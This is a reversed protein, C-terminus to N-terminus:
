DARVKLRIINSAGWTTIFSGTSTTIHLQNYEGERVHIRMGDELEFMVGLLVDDEKSVYKYEGMGEVKVIM